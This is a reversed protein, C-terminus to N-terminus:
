KFEEKIAVAIIILIAIAPLLLMMLINMGPVLLGILVFRRKFKDSLDPDPHIHDNYFWLFLLNFIIWFVLGGLFILLYNM